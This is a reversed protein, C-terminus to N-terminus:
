RKFFEGSLKRFFFKGTPVINVQWSTLTAHVLAQWETRGRKQHSLEDCKGWRQRVTRSIHDTCPSPLLHFLSDNKSRPRKILLAM